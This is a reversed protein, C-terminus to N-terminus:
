RIRAEAILTELQEPGLRPGYAAIQYVQAGALQWKFRAQLPSGDPSKGDVFVDFSTQADGSNAVPHVASIQLQALSAQRLAAMLLPAQTANGAQVLSIAFLSGGVECGAMEMAITQGTLLVDRTATDPKCPLLTSLRGLQVDRWNLSPTCGLQTLACFLWAAVAPTQYLGPRM